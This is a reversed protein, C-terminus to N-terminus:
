NGFSVHIFLGGTLLMYVSYHLCQKAISAENFPDPNSCRGRGAVILISWWQIISYIGKQYSNQATGLYQQTSFGAATSINNDVTGFIGIEVYAANMLRSTAVREIGNM